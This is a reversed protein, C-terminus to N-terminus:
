AATPNSAMEVPTVPHTGKAYTTCSLGGFRHGAGGDRHTDASRGKPTRLSAAHRGYTHTDISLPSPALAVCACSRNVTITPLVCFIGGLGGRGGERRRAEWGAANKGYRHTAHLASRAHRFTRQDSRGRGGGSEEQGRGGRRRWLHLIFVM